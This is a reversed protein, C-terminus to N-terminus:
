GQHHEYACERAAVVDHLGVTVGNLVLVAHKGEAVCHENFLMSAWRKELRHSRNVVRCRVRNAKADLASCAQHWEALRGQLGHWLSEHPVRIWQSLLGNAFRVWVISSIFIATRMSASFMELLYALMM